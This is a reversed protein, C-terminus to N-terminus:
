CIPNQCEVGVKLIMQFHQVNGCIAVRIVKFHHTQFTQTSVHLFQLRKATYSQSIGSSSPFASHNRIFNFLAVLYRMLKGRLLMDLSVLFLLATLNQSDTVITVNDIALPHFCVTDLPFYYATYLPIPNLWM